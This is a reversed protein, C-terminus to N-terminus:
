EVDMRHQRDRRIAGPSLSKCQSDNVHILKGLPSPWDRRSAATQAAKPALALGQASARGRHYRKHFGGSVIPVQICAAVPVSKLRAKDV